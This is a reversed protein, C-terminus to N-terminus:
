RFNSRVEKTITCTITAGVWPREIQPLMTGCRATEAPM